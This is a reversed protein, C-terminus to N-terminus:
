KLEIVNISLNSQKSGNPTIHPELEELVFLEGFQKSIVSQMEM